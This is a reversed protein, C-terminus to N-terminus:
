PVAFIKAKFKKTGTSTSKYADFDQKVDEFIKKWCFKAAIVMLNHHFSIETWNSHLAVEHWNEHFVAGTAEAAKQEDGLLLECFLYVSNKNACYLEMMSKRNRKAAQEINTSM